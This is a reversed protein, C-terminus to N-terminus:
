GPTPLTLLVGPVWNAVRDGTRAPVRPPTWLALAPFHGQGTSKPFSAEERARCSCNGQQLFRAKLVCSQSGLPIKPPM